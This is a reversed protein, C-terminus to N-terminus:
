FLNLLIFVAIELTHDFGQKELSEKIKSRSRSLKMKVSSAGLDLEEAIENVSKGEWYHLLIVLRDVEKLNEIEKKVASKLSDSKSIREIEELFNTASVPDHSDLLQSEKLKNTKRFHDICYNYTMRNIWAELLDSEKLSAIQKFVKLFIEQTADEALGKNKLMFYCRNYVKKNLIEYLEGLAGIDNNVLRNVIDESIISDM